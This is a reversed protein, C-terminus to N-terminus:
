IARSGIQRNKPLLCSQAGTTNRGFLTGQPGSLVQVNALDVFLGPGGQLSLSISAVLPVEALYTAVSPLALFGTSQGRIAFSQVDRSAQGQTGVVLSPVNGNLDQPENVNMQELREQSFATVVVPVDQAREERRQATVVIDRVEMQESRDNAGSPQLTSSVQAGAHVSGLTSLAVGCLFLTARNIM